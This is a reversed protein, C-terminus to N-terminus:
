RWLRKRCGNVAIFVTVIEIVAAILFYIGEM